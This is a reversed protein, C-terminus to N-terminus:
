NRYQATNNYIHELIETEPRTLPLERRAMMIEATKLAKKLKYETFGHAGGWSFSPIFNRPFGSGFINASIGVVTGTNFMTNIGCKSHDGMILGCFQLGTREFGGKVYSWLKVEDYNNKLNSNNSDAGINCWEGIVANGMFGDHAKNSYAFFVSNNIEGGVKCHEGLSTAGYIKSGMKLVSHRNLALSGRVASNEMIEADEGIYIFGQNPNLTAFEAKANKEIFIRETQIARNTSSIKQSSRNKTILLFDQEIEQANLRFIDYSRNILSYDTKKQKRMGTEGGEIFSRAQTESVRGALVLENDYLWEGTKLESMEAVLSANPLLRGNIFLNDSGTELPYNKSLYRPTHYATADPKLRKQWKESLRLIGCRIEAAPRTFTLPYLHEREKDDFFILNM